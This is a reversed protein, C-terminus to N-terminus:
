DKESYVSNDDSLGDYDDSNIKQFGVIDSTSVSGLMGITANFVSTDEKFVVFKGDETIMARDLEEKTEAIKLKSKPIGSPVRKKDLPVFNPDELTPCFKKWHGKKECRHCIYDNPPASFDLNSMKYQPYPNFHHNNMKQDNESNTQLKSIRPILMMNNTNIKSQDQPRPVTIFQSIIRRPKINNISDSMHYHSYNKGKNNWNNLLNNHNLQPNISQYPHEVLVNLKEEDSMESSFVLQNAKKLDQMQKQILDDIKKEELTMLQREQIEVFSKMNPPVYPMVHPPLPKRIVIIKDKCNIIKDKPISSAQKRWDTMWPEWLYGHIYSGSMGSKIKKIDFLKHKFEILFRANEWSINAEMTKIVQSSKKGYLGFYGAECSSGFVYEFVDEPKSSIDM